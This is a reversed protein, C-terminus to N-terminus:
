ISDYINDRTDPNQWKVSLNKLNILRTAYILVENGKITLLKSYSYLWKNAIWWYVLPSLKSISKLNNKKELIPM